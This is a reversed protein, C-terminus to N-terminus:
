KPMRLQKGVPPNNPDRINNAKAIDRWRTVTDYEAVAITQLTEGPQVTHFKHNPGKKATPPVPTQSGPIELKEPEIFEMLTIVADQRLTTIVGDIIERIIDDGLQIDEIIWNTIDRRYIPGAVKVVPPASGDAPSRYLKLLNDVESDVQEESLFGDFLVGVTQMVPDRGRWMTMGPRRPRNVIEWKSGKSTIKPPENLLVRVTNFGKASFTIYHQPLPM